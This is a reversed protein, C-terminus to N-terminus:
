SKAQSTAVAVKRVVSEADYAAEERIAQPVSGNTSMWDVATGRCMSCPSHEYVWEAHYQWASNPHERLLNVVDLVVDHLDYSDYGEVGPLAAAVAAEDGPRFSATIVRIARLPM